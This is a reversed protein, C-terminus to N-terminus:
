APCILISVLYIVSSEGYRKKRTVGMERQWHIVIKLLPTNECSILMKRTIPERLSHLILLNQRAFEERYYSYSYISRVHNLIAIRRDDYECRYRGIIKLQVYTSPWTRRILELSNHRMSDTVSSCTRVKERRVHVNNVVCIMMSLCALRVIERDPM